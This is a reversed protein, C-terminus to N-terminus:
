SGAAPRIAVLVTSGDDILLTLKGPAVDVRHAADLAALLAHEQEMVGSPQDCNKLTTRAM